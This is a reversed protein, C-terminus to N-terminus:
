KRDTFIENLVTNWSISKRDTSFLWAIFIMAAVGFMARAVSLMDFNFSRAALINEYQLPISDSIQNVTEM